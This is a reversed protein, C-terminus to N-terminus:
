SNYKSRAGPVPDQLKVGLEHELWRKLVKSWQEPMRTTMNPGSKRLIVNGNEDRPIKHDQGNLSNSRDLFEGFGATIKIIAFGLCDDEKCRYTRVVRGHQRLGAQENPDDPSPSNIGQHAKGVLPRSRWGEQPIGPQPRSIQQGGLQMAKKIYNDPTELDSPLMFVQKQHTDLVGLYWQGRNGSQYDLPNGPDGWKLMMHPLAEYAM